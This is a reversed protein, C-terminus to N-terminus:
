LTLLVVGRSMDVLFVIWCVIAFGTCDHIEEVPVASSAVSDDCPAELELELTASGDTSPTESRATKEAAVTAM